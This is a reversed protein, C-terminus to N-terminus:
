ASSSPTNGPGTEGSSPVYQTIGSQRRRRRDLVFGAGAAGIAGGLADALLDSWQSARLPNWSQLLEDAAGIGIALLLVIVFSREARAGVMPFVVLTLLAALLAYQSGHLVIDPLGTGRLVGASTMRAAALLFLAVTLAALARPVIRRM